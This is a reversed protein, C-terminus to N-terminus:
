GCVTVRDEGPEPDERILIWTGEDYMSGRGNALDEMKAFEEESSYFIGDAAAAYFAMFSRYSDVLTECVKGAPYILKVPLGQEAFHWAASVFMELFYDRRSLFGIDMRDEPVKAAIALITVRRKEMRDPVRVTLEGLRASVKWNVSSPSDGRMYARMDSGPTDEFLNRSKLGRSNLPNELDLVADALDTVPPSVVARFTYLVPLEASFIFFPDSFGLGKLGVCYSGAYRCSIGSHFEMKEFSGLSIEQGTRLEYIDCREDFLMLRMRHIPLLGENELLAQFTHDEGRTVRHVEIEQFARLFKYNLFIYGCSLPLLLLLAYLWAYVVPGGYFSAFVLGAALAALYLFFRKRNVRIKM